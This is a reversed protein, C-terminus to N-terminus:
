CSTTQRRLLWGLVLGAAIVNAIVLVWRVGGAGGTEDSGPPLEQDMSKGVIAVPVIVNEAISRDAVQSGEPLDLGEWTLWSEPVPENM